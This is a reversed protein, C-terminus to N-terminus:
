SHYDHKEKYGKHEKWKKMEKRQADTLVNHIKSRMEARLIIKNEKLDGISKALKKVKNQDISDAHMVERLQKRYEKKKDRLAEIKPQFSERINRVKTAQKDSLGLHKIMKEMRYGSKKGHKDCYKGKHGDHKYYEGKEYRHEREYRDDDANALTFGGLALSSVLLTTAIKNM